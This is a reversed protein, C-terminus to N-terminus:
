KGVYSWDPLDTLPGYSTGTRSQGHRYLLLFCALTLYIIKLKVKDILLYNMCVFKVIKIM